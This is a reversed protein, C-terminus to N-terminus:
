VYWLSYLKYCWLRSRYGNLRHSQELLDPDWNGSQVDDLFLFELCSMFYTAPRRVDSILVLLITLLNRVSLIIPGVSGFPGTFYHWCDQLIPIHENSFKVMFEASLVVDSLAIRAISLVTLTNSPGRRGSSGSLFLTNHCLKLMLWDFTRHEQFSIPDWRFFVRAVSWESPTYEIGRDSLPFKELTVYFLTGWEKRTSAAAALPTCPFPYRNSLQFLLPSRHIHLKGTSIEIFFSFGAPFSRSSELAKQFRLILEGVTCMSVWRDYLM